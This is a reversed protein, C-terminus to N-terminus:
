RRTTQALPWASAGPGAARSPVFAIPCPLAALLRDLPGDLRSSWHDDNPGRGVVALAAPTARLQELALDAAVVEVEAGRVVAEREALSAAAADQPGHTRIAVIRTPLEAARLHRPEPVVVVPCQAHAVVRRGVGFAASRGAPAGVVLLQSGASLDILANAPDSHSLHTSVVVSGRRRSTAAAFGTLLADARQDMARLAAEGGCWVRRPDAPAPCHAILLAAGRIASEDVAWAVAAASAPSDEVGVVIRPSALANNRIDM